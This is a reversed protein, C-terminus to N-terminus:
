ELQVSANVLVVVGRCKGQASWRLFSEDQVLRRPQYSLSSLSTPLHQRCTHRQCNSSCVRSNRNETTRNETARNQPQNQCIKQPPGQTHSVLHPCLTNCHVSIHSISHPSQKSLIVATSKHRLFPSLPISGVSRCVFL